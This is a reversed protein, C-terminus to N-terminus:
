DRPLSEARGKHRFANVFVKLGVLVFAVGVIVFVLSKRDPTHERDIEILGAGLLMFTLGFIGAGIRQVLPANQSGKWLFEDVSRGNLLADPWVTNSQKARVEEIFKETDSSGTNDKM